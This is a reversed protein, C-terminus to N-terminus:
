SLKGLFIETDYLFEVIGNKQNSNFIKELEKMMPNFNPHNKTPAYSSSLLRGKLSQLNFKQSYPFIQKKYNKFFSKLIEENINKHDVKKYDVAYDLLLKEYSRLFQSDNDKRSNWILCVSGGSKLIRLFEKKQNKLIM